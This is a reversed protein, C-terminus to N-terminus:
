NLHEKVFPAVEHAPLGVIFHISALEWHFRDQFSIWVSMCIKLTRIKTEM